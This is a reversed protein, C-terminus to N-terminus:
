YTFNVQGAINRNPSGHLNWPGSGSLPELKALSLVEKGTDFYMEFAPFPEVKSGPQITVRGTRGQRVQVNVVVDWEIQPSGAFCANNAGGKFHVDALFSGLTTSMVVSLASTDPTSDCEVEGDECDVEVTNDARTESVMSFDGLRFSLNAMAHIRSSAKPGVDFSRQDTLFCDSVGVVPGPIMTQSTAAPRSKTLGSIEKPLFSNIWLRFEGDISSQASLPVVSLPLALLSASGFVFDRRTRFSKQKM